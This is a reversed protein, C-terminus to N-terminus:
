NASPRRFNVEIRTSLEAGPPLSGNSELFGVVATKAARKEVLDWAENAVVYEWYAGPDALKVSTLRSLYVTGHATKWSDVGEQDPAAIAKFYTEIKGMSEKFPAAAEKAAAEIEAVKDRLEIYKAVLSDKNLTTM